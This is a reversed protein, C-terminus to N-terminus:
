NDDHRRNFSMMSDHAGQLKSLRTNLDNVFEFLKTQNADIKKITRVLLFAAVSMLGYFLVQVFGANCEIFNELLCSEV